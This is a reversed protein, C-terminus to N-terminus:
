INYIKSITNKLEWALQNYIIQTKKFGKKYKYCLNYKRM